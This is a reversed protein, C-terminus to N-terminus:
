NEEQEREAEKPERTKWKDLIERARAIEDLAKQLDDDAEM